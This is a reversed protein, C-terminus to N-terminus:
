SMNNEKDDDVSGRIYNIHQYEMAVLHKALDLRELLESESIDPFNTRIKKELRKIWNM